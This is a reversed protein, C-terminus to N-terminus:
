FSPAQTADSVHDRRVYFRFHSWEFPTAFASRLTAAITRELRQDLASREKDEVVMDSRAIDALLEQGRPSDPGPFQYFYQILFRTGPTLPMDLLLATAQTDLPVYTRLGWHKADDRLREVVAAPLRANSAGPYWYKEPDARYSVDLATVGAVLVMMCMAVRAWETLGTMTKPLLMEAALAFTCAWIPVFPLYYHGYYTGPASAAVLEAAFWVPLLVATARLVPSEPRRRIMWAIIVGSALIGMLIATAPRGAFVAGIMGALGQSMRATLSDHPAAFHADRALQRLGGVGHYASGFTRTEQILELYQALGGARWLYTLWAVIPLLFGFVEWAVIRALCPSERERERERRALPLHLVVWIAILSALFSQRSLFTLAACLGAALAWGNVATRGRIRLSLALCTVAGMEFLIGYEETVHGGQFVDPNRLAVLGILLGALAPALRVGLAFRLMGFMVAALLLLAIREMLFVSRVDPSLRWAMAGLLYIAPPKNDFVDRYMVAGGAVLKSCAIFFGRDGAPARALFDDSMFVRLCTLSVATAASWEILLPYRGGAVRM